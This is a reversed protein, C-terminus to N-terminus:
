EYRLLIKLNRKTKDEYKKAIERARVLDNEKGVGLIESRPNFYMKTDFDIGKDISFVDNAYFYFIKMEDLIAVMDSEIERVQQNWLSAKIEDM